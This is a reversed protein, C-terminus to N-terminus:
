SILDKLDKTAESPVFIEQNGTWLDGCAINVTAGQVADFYYSDPTTTDDYTFELTSNKIFEGNIKTFGDKSSIEIKLGTVDQNDLTIPYICLRCLDPDSPPTITLVTGTINYTDSATINKATPAFNYGAKSVRVYVNGEITFVANGNADTTVPGYFPTDDNSANHVTVKAGSVNAPVDDKVNITATYQGTGLGGDYTTWPGTGGTSIISNLDTQNEAVDTHIDAIDTDLDSNTASEITVLGNYDLFATQDDTVTYIFRGLTDLEGADFSIDYAGLGLETWKNCLSYVSTNDPTTSWNSDVTIKDTAADFDSVTRVQGSGTGAIIQIEYGNWYDDAQTLISDIIYDTGASDVVGKCVRYTTTNDPATATAFTFTGTAGTYDTIVLNQGSGTGALTRILLGNFYDDAYKGALKSDVLTTTSGSTATSKFAATVQSAGMDYPYLSGGEKQAWVSISAHGIGTEPTKFDIKDYLLCPLKKVTSQKIIM